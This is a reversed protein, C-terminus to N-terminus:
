LRLPRLTRQAHSATRQVAFTSHRSLERWMQLCPVAPPFPPSKKKTRVLWWKFPDHPWAATVDLWMPHGPTRVFTGTVTVTQATTAFEGQEPEPGHNLEPHELDFDNVTPSPFNPITWALISIYSRSPPREASFSSLIAYTTALMSIWKIMASPHVM